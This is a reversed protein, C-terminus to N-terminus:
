GRVRPTSSSNWRTSRCACPPESGARGLQEFPQGLRSRRPAAASRRRSSCRRTSVSSPSRASRTSWRRTSTSAAARVPCRRRRRRPPAATPARRSAPSASPGSGAPHEGVVLQQGSLLQDAAGLHVDTISSRSSATTTALRRPATGASAARALRWSATRTRRSRCRSSSRGCGPRAASASSPARRGTDFRGGLVVLQDCVQDGAPHDGVSPMTYKSTRGRRGRRRQFKPDAVAARRHVRDHQDGAQIARQDLALDIRQPAACGVGSM